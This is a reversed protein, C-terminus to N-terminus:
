ALAREVAAEAHLVTTDLAPVPIDEDGILMGIETCGLIVAEAGMDVLHGAVRSYAARSEDRVVGKVLEDFIVRHVLERDDKEPVVVRLGYRSELRDRYFSQEMTFATGLLGVVHAGASRAARGTPDAIHIWPASTRRELDDFVLHMTNTALLLVEAGAQECAGAANGLMHAADDWRDERQMREVPDFDVSVMVMDASHYGGLRRAVGQNILRYYEASSEWSMGGLVGIRKM